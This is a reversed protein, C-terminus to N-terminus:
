KEIEEAPAEAEMMEETKVAQGKADYTLHLAQGDNNMLVHYHTGTSGKTTYASEFTASEYVEMIDQQVSAPLDQEEMETRTETPQANESQASLGTACALLVSFLLPKM